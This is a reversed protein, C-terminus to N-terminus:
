ALLFPAAAILWDPLGALATGAADAAVPAAVDAAAVTDAAAPAAALADTTATSGALYPIGANSAGWWTGGAVPATAAAPAASAAPGFVGGASFPGGSGLLKPAAIIGAGGLGALGGWLANQQALKQQYQQEAINASLNYAGLWDTPNVTGPRAPTMPQQAQMLAVGLPSIAM